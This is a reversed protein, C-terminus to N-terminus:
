RAGLSRLYRTLEFREEWERFEKEFRPKCKPCSRFLKAEAESIMRSPFFLHDTLMRCGKDSGACKYLVTAGNFEGELKWLKM